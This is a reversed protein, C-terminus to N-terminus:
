AGIFQKLPIQANTSLCILEAHLGDNLQHKGDIRQLFVDTNLAPQSFQIHLARKQPSLGAQELATHIHIRTIM